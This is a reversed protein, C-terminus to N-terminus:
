KCYKLRYKFNNLLGDKAHTRLVSESKWLPRRHLKKAPNGPSRSM